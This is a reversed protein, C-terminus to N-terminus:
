VTVGSGEQERGGTVEGRCGTGIFEGARPLESLHFWM